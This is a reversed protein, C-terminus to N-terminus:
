VGKYNLVQRLKHTVRVLDQQAEMVQHIDKYADPIEDVLKDASGSLWTTGGMREALDQATFSAKAKTRSMSRGAGHSCSNWSLPNGLGEVIFTSTGMSGPIVGRDGTQSRIAGKRTIWLETNNHTEKAAFNHHCNIRDVEKSQPGCVGFLADLTASMMFDRNVFAYDQAWLMDAIYHDFAPTNQVFWALDSDELPTQHQMSALEKAAWIHKNALQLGVWRSGSHIVVWVAGTEDVCIEVFHNGSGLTGIQRVARAQQSANLVTEPRHDAFWKDIGSANRRSRNEHSSGMGAPVAKEIHSLLPDLSDPLQEERINTKVAIMGCGIDVGVASPIIANRTPIVSGITAGRGGHADPMLAVHGEVVPLRATREAQARTQPDLAVAWSVLKPSLRECM